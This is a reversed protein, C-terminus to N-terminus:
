PYFRQCTVDSVLDLIHITQLTDLDIVLVNFYDHALHQTTYLNHIGTIRAKNRTLLNFPRVQQCLVFADHGLVFFCCCVFEHQQTNGLGRKGGIRKNGSSGELFGRPHQSFRSNHALLIIQAAEFFIDDDSSEYRRTGAKGKM